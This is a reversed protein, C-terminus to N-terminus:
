RGLPKMPLKAICFSPNNIEKLKSKAPLHGAFGISPNKLFCSIYSFLLGLKKILERVPVVV